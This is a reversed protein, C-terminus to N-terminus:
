LTRSKLMKYFETEKGNLLETTEGVKQFGLKKYLNIAVPHNKRVILSIKNFRLEEFAFNIAEKTIVTGYGRNLYSPNILVRFENSNKEIFMFLGILVEKDKVSYCYHNKDCCYKDIWGDEELAYNFSAYEGSYKWTLIEDRNKETLYEIIM